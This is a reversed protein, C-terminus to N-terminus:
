PEKPGGDEFSNQALIDSIRKAGRARMDPSIRGLLEVQHRFLPRRFDQGAVKHHVAFSMAVAWTQNELIWYLLEDLDRTTQRGNESGRERIVYHYADDVELFPHAEDNPKGYRDFLKGDLGISAGLARARALIEPVASLRASV